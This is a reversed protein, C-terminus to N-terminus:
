DPSSPAIIGVGESKNLGLANLTLAFAKTNKKLSEKSYHIWEGDKRHYWGRFDSRDCNAFFMAPLSNFQLEEM